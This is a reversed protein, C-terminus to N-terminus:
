RRSSGTARWPPPPVAARDRRSPFARRRPAGSRCRGGIDRAEFAREGEDGLARAPRRRHHAVAHAAREGHRQGRALRTADGAERQQGRGPVEVGVAGAVGEQQRGPRQQRLHGVLHALQRDVDQLRQEPREIGPERHLLEAAEEAHIWCPSLARSKTSSSSQSFSPAGSAPGVARSHRTPQYPSLM